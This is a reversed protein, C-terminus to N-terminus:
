EIYGRRKMKTFISDAEKIMNDYYDRNFSNRSIGSQTFYKFDDVLLLSRLIAGRANLHYQTDYFFDSSINYNYINGFYKVGIKDLVSYIEYVRDRIKSNSMDFKDNKISVPYTLFLSCDISKLYANMETLMYKFHDSVAKNKIYNHSFNDLEFPQDVCFEGYKNAYDSIYAKKSLVADAYRNKIDGIERIPMQKGIYLLRCPYSRIANIFIYYQQEKSFINLYKKGWTTFQDIQWSNPSSTTFFYGYELPMIVIDGSKVYKKIKYFIYELPLGAHCSLNLVPIGTKEQIVESSIGFLSNSGSAIVIKRTSIKEAHGDKISYIEPIWYEAKIYLPYYFYCFISISYCVVFFLSVFCIFVIVRKKYFNNNM